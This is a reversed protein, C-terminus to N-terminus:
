LKPVFVASGILILMWTQPEPVVPVSAPEAPKLGARDYQAKTELVVAGSLATVLQDARPSSCRKMSSAHAWWVCCKTARGFGLWIFRPKRAGLRLLPFISAQDNARLRAPNAAGVTSSGCWIM